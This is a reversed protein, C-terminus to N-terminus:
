LLFLTINEWVWGKYSIKYFKNMAKHKQIYMKFENEM